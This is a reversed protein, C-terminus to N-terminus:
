GRVVVVVIFFVQIASREPISAQSTADEERCPKSRKEQRSRSSRRKGTSSRESLIGEARARIKTEGHSDVDESEWPTKETVRGKGDSEVERLPTPAAIHTTDTQRFVCM